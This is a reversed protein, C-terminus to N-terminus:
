REVYIVITCKLDWEGVHGLTGRPLIFDSQLEVLVIVSLHREHLDSEVDWRVLCVLSWVRYFYPNVELLDKEM